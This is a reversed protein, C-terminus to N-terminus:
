VFQFPIQGHQDVGAPDVVPFSSRDRHTFIHDEASGARAVAQIHSLIEGPGQAARINDHHARRGRDRVHRLSLARAEDERAVAARSDPALPIVVGVHRRALQRLGHQVDILFSIVPIFLVAPLIPMIRGATDHLSDFFVIFYSDSLLVAPSCSPFIGGAPSIDAFRVFPLRALAGM